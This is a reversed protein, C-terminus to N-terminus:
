QFCADLSRDLNRTETQAPACLFGLVSPGAARGNRTGASQSVHDARRESFALEYALSRGIAEPPADRHRSADTGTRVVDGFAATAPDREDRENWMLVAWGGPKLIRHFEALTPEPDFWHFAQASLVADAYATPLGTAEAQGATYEVPKVAEDNEAASIAHCRMDANPEIGIVRIGRAAFLRSAIGTGCGVDVLLSEPGLGCRLVVFDIAHAPYGPRFQSYTQALGTFRGTPDLSSREPM